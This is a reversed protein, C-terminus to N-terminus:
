ALRTASATHGEGGEVGEGVGRDGDGVDHAGILPM